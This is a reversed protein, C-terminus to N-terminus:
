RCEVVDADGIANTLTLVTAHGQDSRSQLLHQIEERTSSRGRLDELHEVM